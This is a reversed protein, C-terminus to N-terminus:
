KQEVESQVKWGDIDFGGLQNFVRETLEKYTNLMERKDMTTIGKLFTEAFHKDQFPEKLYKILYSPDTLYSSIQYVPIQELSQFRCYDNFLTYMANFYVLNFDPRNEEYCDLLNDYSDWIGYKKIEKMIAPLETYKRDKWVKAEEILQKTIGSKDFIVRGTIFQVMSMSRYDRYDEEFYKRIQRPPNMFYEILYGDIIKNGRERWTSTESLIIHVDIDSRKTPNGTIYSGCVVAALVDDQDKFDLLFEELADEWTRKMQNVKKKELTESLTERM